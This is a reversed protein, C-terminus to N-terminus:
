DGQAVEVGVEVDDALRALALGLEQLVEQVLQGGAGPAAAEEVGVAVQGAIQQRLKRGLWRRARPKGMRAIALPQEVQVGGAGIVQHGAVDELVGGACGVLDGLVHHLGEAADPRLGQGLRGAEGLDHAVGHDDEDGAAQRQQFQLREEGVAVEALAHELVDLIGQDDGEELVLVVAPTALLGDEDRRDEVLHRGEQELGLDAGHQAGVVVGQVEAADDVLALDQDDVQAQKRSSSVWRRSPNPVLRVPAQDNM